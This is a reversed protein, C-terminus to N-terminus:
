FINLYHEKFINLVVPSPICRLLLTHKAHTFGQIKDETVCVGMGVGVGCVWVVGCGGGCGGEVRGGRM